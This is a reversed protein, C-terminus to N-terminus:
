GGGGEEEPSAVSFTVQYSGRAVGIDAFISYPYDQGCQYCFSPPFVLIWIIESLGREDTETDYPKELPWLVDKCEPCDPDDPGTCMYCGNEYYPLFDDDRLWFDGSPAWWTLEVDNMPEDVQSVPATKNAYTVVATVYHRYFVSFAGCQGSCSVQWAAVDGLVTVQSSYPAVVEEGCSFGLVVIFLAVVVLSGVRRM